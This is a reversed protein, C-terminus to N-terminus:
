GQGGGAGGRGEEGSRFGPRERGLGCPLLAGAMDGPVASAGGGEVFGGGLEGNREFFVELLEGGALGEFVEALNTVIGPKEVFVGTQRHGFVDNGQGM